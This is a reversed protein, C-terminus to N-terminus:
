VRYFVVRGSYFYVIARWSHKRFLLSERSSEVVQNWDYCVLRLMIARAKECM